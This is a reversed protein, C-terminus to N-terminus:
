AASRRPVELVTSLNDKGWRYVRGGGPVARPSLDSYGVIQRLPVGLERAVAVEQLVGNARWTERGLVVLVVDSRNIRKRAEALWLRQPAAEKMSWNEIEFGYTPNRLQGGLLKSIRLDNDYDFSFFVRTRHLTTPTLGNSRDPVLLATPGLVCTRM